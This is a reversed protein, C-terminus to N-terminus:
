VHARGIKTYWDSPHDPYFMHRQFDDLTPCERRPISRKVPPTFSRTSSGFRDTYKSLEKEYKTSLLNATRQRKKLRREPEKASDVVASSDRRPAASPMNSAREQLMSELLEFTKEIWERRGEGPAGSMILVLDLTEVIKDLVDEFATGLQTGHEGQGM